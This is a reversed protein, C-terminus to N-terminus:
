GGPPPISTGTNPDSPSPTPGQGPASPGLPFSASPQNRPWSMPGAPRLSPRRDEPAPPGTTGGAPPMGGGALLELDLAENRVRLDIYIVTAVASVFPTTLITSIVSLIASVALFLTVNSVNLGGSLAGAVAGIVLSAAVLLILAVVLRAFTAWWRGRVLSSSRKLASLGTSGEMMLVPVAVSISVVAWIGPIILLLFGGAVVVASMIALWVLSGIKARAFAFSERWDPKRGLYADLLLKFVAGTALLQAVVGILGVLLLPLIGGTSASPDTTYLTGDHVFVGSPLIARRLILEILQLPVVVVAITKWLQVAESRYLKIATDLTEGVSLPRLGGTPAYSQGSPLGSDM